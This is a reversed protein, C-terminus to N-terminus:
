ELHIDHSLFSGQTQVQGISPINEPAITKNPSIPSSQSKKVFGLKELAEERPSKQELGGANNTCGTVSLRLADRPSQQEEHCSGDLRALVQARLEQVSVGSRLITDFKKVYAPHLNPSRPLKPTSQSSIQPGNCASSTVNEADISPCTEEMEDGPNVIKDVELTSPTTVGFPNQAATVDSDDKSSISPAADTERSGDYNIENNDLDASDCIDETNLEMELQTITDSLYQLCEQEESSLHGVNDENKIEAEMDVAVPLRREAEDSYKSDQSEHM